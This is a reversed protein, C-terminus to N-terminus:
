KAKLEVGCDVAEFVGLCAGVDAPLLSSAHTCGHVQVSAKSQSLESSGQRPSPAKWLSGAWEVNIPLWSLWEGCVHGCALQKWESDRGLHSWATWRWFQGDCTLIRHRIKGPNARSNWLRLASHIWVFNCGQLFLVDLYAHILTSLSQTSPLKRCSSVGAIPDTTFYIHWRDYRLQPLPTAVFSHAM